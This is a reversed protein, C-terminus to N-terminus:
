VPAQIDVHKGHDFLRLVVTTVRGDEGTMVLEAGYLLSDEVGVLYQLHLSEVGVDNADFIGEFLEGPVEGELHFVPRGDVVSEKLLVLHAALDAVQVLNVFEHFGGSASGEMEEVRWEDSLLDKVYLVDGIVVMEVDVKFFFVVVEAVLQQRDDGQYDGSIRLRLPVSFGEAEVESTVTLEYSGMDFEDSRSSLAGLVSLARPLGSEGVSEVSPVTLPVDPTQIEVVPIEQFGPVVPMGEPVDTLIEVAPVPTEVLADPLVVVESVPTEVVIETLVVMETPPVVDSGAVVVPSSEAFVLTPLPEASSCGVLFVCLLSVLFLYKLAM